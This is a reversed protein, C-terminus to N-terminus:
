RRGLEAFDVCDVVEILDPAAHALVAEVLLLSGFEADDRDEVLDRDDFLFARYIEEQWFLKPFYLDLRFDLAEIFPGFVVSDELAFDVLREGDLSVRGQLAVRLKGCLRRHTSHGLDSRDVLCVCTDLFSQAALPVVLGCIFGILASCLVCTDTQEGVILLIFSNSATCLDFGPLM